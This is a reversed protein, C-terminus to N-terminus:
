MTVCVFAFLYLQLHLHLIYIYFLMYFIRVKNQKSVKSGTIDHLAMQDDGEEFDCDHVMHTFNDTGWWCQIVPIIDTEFEHFGDDNM